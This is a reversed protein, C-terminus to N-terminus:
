PDAPNLKCLGVAELARLAAISKASDSVVKPLAAVPAAAPAFLAKVVGDDVAVVSEDIPPKRPPSISGGEGDGDGDGDEQKTADDDRRRRRRRLGRLARMGGVLVSGVGRGLGGVVGVSSKLLNKVDDALVCFVRGGVVVVVPTLLLSKLNSPSPPSASVRAQVQPKVPKPKDDWVWTLGM